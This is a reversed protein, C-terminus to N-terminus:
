VQGNNKARIYARQSMGLAVWPKDEEQHSDEATYTQTVQEPVQEVVPEEVQAKAHSGDCKGESDETDGCGCDPKSYKFLNILQTVLKGKTLRRDLEVGNDRGLQELEIKSLKKLDKETM